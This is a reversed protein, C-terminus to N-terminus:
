IKMDGFRTIYRVIRCKFWIDVFQVDNLGAFFYCCLCGMGDDMNSM